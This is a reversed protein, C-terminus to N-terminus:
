HQFYLKPHPPHHHYAFDNEHLVWSENIQQNNPKNSNHNLQPKSLKCKEKVNKCSGNMSGTRVILQKEKRGDQTIWKVTINLARSEMFPNQGFKLLLDNFGTEM